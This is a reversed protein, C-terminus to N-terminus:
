TTSCARREKTVEIGISPQQTRARTKTDARGAARSAPIAPQPGGIHEDTHLVMYDQTMSSPQSTRPAGTKAASQLAVHQM